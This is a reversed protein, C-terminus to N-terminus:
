PMIICCLCSLISFGGLTYCSGWDLSDERRVQIVAAAEKTMEAELRERELRDEVLFTIRLILVKM